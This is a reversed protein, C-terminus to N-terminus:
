IQHHNNKITNKDHSKITHRTDVIPAKGIAAPLERQCRIISAQCAARTKFYQQGFTASTYTYHGPTPAPIGTDEISLGWYWGQETQNIDFQFNM